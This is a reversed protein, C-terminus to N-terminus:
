LIRSKITCCNAITDQYTYLKSFTQGVIQITNGHSHISQKRTDLLYLEYLLWLINKKLFAM